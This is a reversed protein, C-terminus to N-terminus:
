RKVSFFEEIRGVLLTGKESTSEAVDAFVPLPFGTFM